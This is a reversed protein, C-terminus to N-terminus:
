ATVVTIPQQHGQYTWRYTKENLKMNLLYSSFRFSAFDNLLIHSDDLNKFLFKIIQRFMSRRDFAILSTTVKLLYALRRIVNKLRMTLFQECHDYLGASWTYAFLEGKGIDSSSHIGFYQFEEIVSQDRFAINNDIRAKLAKDYELVHNVKSIPPSVEWFKLLDHAHKIVPHKLALRPREEVFDVWLDWLPEERNFLFIDKEYLFFEAVDNLVKKENKKRIKSLASEILGKYSENFQMEVELQKRKQKEKM